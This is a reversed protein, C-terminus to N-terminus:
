DRRASHGPTGRSAASRLRKLGPRRGTRFTTRFALSIAGSPDLVLTESEEGAHRSAPPRASHIVGGKRRRTLARCKTGHSSNVRPASPTHGSGHALCRLNRPAPSGRRSEGGPHTA